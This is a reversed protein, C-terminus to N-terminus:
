REPAAPAAAVFPMTIEIRFAGPPATTVVQQRDGYLVALRERVNAIGLGRNGPDATTRPATGVTNEIAITLTGESVCAIVSVSGGATTRAIGHRTANEVLPQLLLVPVLARYAEEEIDYRVELRDGFRVQEIDLYLGVFALEDALAVQAAGDHRLTERLFDALRAIMLTADENRREVVLTSIANLMNFFLHPNLQSQLARLRVEAVMTEARLAREREAQLQAHHKLGIYLFGWAVLSFSHYVTGNLLMAMSGISPARGLFGFAIPREAINFVMTWVMALLYSAMVCTALISPMSRQAVLMPRLIARLVLSAVVGLLTLLLKETLMYALPYRGVRSFAMAVFFGTWGLLQLQWFSPTRRTTM